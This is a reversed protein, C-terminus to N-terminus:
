KCEMQIQGNLKRVIYYHKEVAKRASRHCTYGGGELPAPSLVVSADYSARKFDKRVLKAYREIFERKNIPHKRLHFLLDFCTAYSSGDRYGNIKSKPPLHVSKSKANAKESM